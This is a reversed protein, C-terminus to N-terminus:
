RKRSRPWFRWLEDESEFVLGRRLDGSALREAEGRLAETARSVDGALLYALGLSLAVAAVLLVAFVFRSDAVEGMLSEMASVAVLVRGDDPLQKWTLVHPSDFSTSNGAEIGSEMMRRLEGPLLIEREGDLVQMEQPDFLLIEVAIGLRKGEARAGVLMPTGYWEFREAADELFRAQVFAAHAEVPRHSHGLCLSRGRVGAVFAAVM